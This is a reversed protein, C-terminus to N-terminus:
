GRSVHRRRGVWDGLGAILCQQSLTHACTRARLSARVFSRALIRPPALECSRAAREHAWKVQELAEMYSKCAAIEDHVNLEFASNPTYRTANGGTAEQMLQLYLLLVSLGGEDVEVNQHLATCPDTALVHTM